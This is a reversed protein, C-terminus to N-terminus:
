SWCTRRKYRGKFAYFMESYECLIFYWNYSDCFNDTYGRDGYPYFRKLTVDKISLEKGSFAGHGVKVGSWKGCGDLIVDNGKIEKLGFGIHGYGRKSEITPSSPLVEINNSYLFSSFYTIIGKLSFGSDNVPATSLM